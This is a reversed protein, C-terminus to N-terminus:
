MVSCRLDGAICKAALETLWGCGGGMAAGRGVQLCRVEGPQHRDRRRGEREERTDQSMCVFLACRASVIGFVTAENTVNGPRNDMTPAARWHTCHLTGTTDQHQVQITNVCTRSREGGESGGSKGDCLYTTANVTRQQVGRRHRDRKPEQRPNGNHMTRM